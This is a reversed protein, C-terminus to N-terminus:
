FAATVGRWHRCYEQSSSFGSSRHRWHGRRIHEVEDSHHSHLLCQPTLKSLSPADFKFGIGASYPWYTTNNARNRRLTSSSDKHFYFIFVKIRINKSKRLICLHRPFELTLKESVKPYSKQFIFSPSKFPM